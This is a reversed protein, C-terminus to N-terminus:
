KERGIIEPESWKWTEGDLHKLDARIIVSIGKELNFDPDGLRFNDGDSNVVLVENPHIDVVKAEMYITASHAPMTITLFILTVICLIVFMIVPRLSRRNQASKSAWSRLVVDADYSPPLDVSKPNFPNNETLEKMAKEAHKTLEANTINTM